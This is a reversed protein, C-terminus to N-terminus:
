KPFPRNGRADTAAQAIRKACAEGRIVLKKLRVPVEHRELGNAQLLTEAEALLRRLAMVDGVVNAGGPISLVPIEALAKQADRVSALSHRNPDGRALVEAFSPRLAM